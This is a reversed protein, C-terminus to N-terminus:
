PSIAYNRFGRRFISVLLMILTCQLISILSFGIWTEIMHGYAKGFYNVCYISIFDLFHSDSIGFINILLGAPLISPLYTIGWVMESGQSNGVDGLSKAVSIFTLLISLDILLWLAVLLQIKHKPVNLLACGIWLIWSIFFYFCLLGAPINPVLFSGAACLFGGLGWGFGFILCTPLNTFEIRNM